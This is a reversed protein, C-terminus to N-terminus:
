EVIIIDYPRLAISDFRQGFIEVKPYDPLEPVHWAKQAAIIWVSNDSKDALSSPWFAPAPQSGNWSLANKPLQYDFIFRAAVEDIIYQKEPHKQIYERVVQYQQPETKEICTTAIITMLNNLLFVILAIAILIKRTLPKIPSRAIILIITVWSLFRFIGIISSAYTFLNLIGSITLVIVIQNLIKPNKRNKYICLFLTAFYLSLLSGHLIEGYGIRVLWIIAPIVETLSQRRLSSHWALDAFFREVQFNIALLFLLSILLVAALFAIIRPFLYGKRVSQSEAWNQYVLAIGFCSGCAMMVPFTLIAAGLFSFGWFYYWPRDRLLFWTGVALFAIGLADHRLGTFLIWSAFCLIVAYIVWRSFHYFKLILATFISFVVYCLFNFFLITQTSIKVGSLWAALVYSYFPPQVFFYNVTRESWQTLLPNTFESNKVLNLAAGIFFLDDDFPRPYGWCYLAFWFVI